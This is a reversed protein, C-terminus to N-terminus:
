KPMPQTSGIMMNEKDTKRGCHSNCAPDVRVLFSKPQCLDKPRQEANTCARLTNCKPSEKSRLGLERFPESENCVQSSSSPQVGKSEHVSVESADKFADVISTKM